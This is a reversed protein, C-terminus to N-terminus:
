NSFLDFTKSVGAIFYTDKAPNGNQDVSNSLGKDSRTISLSFDFLDKDSVTLTGGYGIEFLSAANSPTLSKALEDGWDGYRGYFGKYELKIDLFTYDRDPMTQLGELKGIAYAISIFKWGASLNLEYANGDFVDSYFYGTGGLGFNFDGLDFGYGGYLDIEMGSRDQSGSNLSSAWTGLYFGSEELDLGGQAAAKGDSLPVGRFLYQTVAGANATIDVAQASNFAAISLLVSTILYKKV